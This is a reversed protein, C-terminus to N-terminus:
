TLLSDHLYVASLTFNGFYVAVLHGFKIKESRFIHVSAKM